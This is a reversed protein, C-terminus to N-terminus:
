ITSSLTGILKVESAKYLRLCQDNIKEIKEEPLSLTITQSNVILRLFEIEQPPDLLCKKLNIGFGLDQLLFIESDRAMFIESMGNGLILLDKLYIIVKKM